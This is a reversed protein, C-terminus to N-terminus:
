LHDRIVSKDHGTNGAIEIELTAHDIGFDREMLQKVRRKVDEITGLDREFVEVHAELAVRHEDLRWVHVHHMNHVGELAEVERVMRDMDFGRPASEMLIHVVRRIEVAGHIMIYIAIAVTIAPDVWYVQQTMVLIGGLIVGLTALTDGLMHIFASRINLSSKQGQYLLWASIGDEVFAIGGVLLMIYGEVEPPDFFREVAQVLLFLGIVLLTTLNILAGILEARQYGFTKGADAPRRSIRRAGYSVGLAVADSGNHAADAILSLSGSLIGGVVQTVTIGVNLLLAWLLNRGGSEKPHHASHGM